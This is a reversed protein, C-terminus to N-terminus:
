TRSEAYEVAEGRLSCLVDWRRQVVDYGVEGERPFTSWRDLIGKDSVQAAWAAVDEARLAPGAGRLIRDAGCLLGPMDQRVSEAKLRRTFLEAASEDRGSQVAAREDSHPKSIDYHAPLSDGPVTAGTILCPLAQRRVWDAIGDLEHMLLPWRDSGPLHVGVTPFLTYVEQQGIPNEAIVDGVKIPEEPQPELGRVSRPRDRERYMAGMRVATVAPTRHKFHNTYATLRALPHDDTGITRNFPQLPELRRNLVGRARLSKPGGNRRQRDAWRTFDEYTKTAPMEVNRAATNSLTGGNLFEAEAFLTHELAGRLVVFADAVLLSVKRPVPAIGVVVSRSVQGDPVEQLRLPGDPQTGYVFLLDGIQGIIGDAHALAAAAGLHRDPLWGYPGLDDM